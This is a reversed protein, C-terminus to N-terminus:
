IRHVASKGTIDRFKNMTILVPDGTDTNFNSRVYESLKDKIDQPLEKVEGTYEDSYCVCSLNEDYHFQLIYDSLGYVKCRECEIRVNRTNDYGETQTAEDGCFYCNITKEEM